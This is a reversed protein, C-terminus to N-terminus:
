SCLPLIENELALFRECLQRLLSRDDPRDPVCGAWKVRCLRYIQEALDAREGNEIRRIAEVAQAKSTVFAREHTV